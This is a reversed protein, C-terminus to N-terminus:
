FIMHLFNFTYVTSLGLQLARFGQHRRAPGLAVSGGPEGLQEQLRASISTCGGRSLGPVGQVAAKGRPHGLLQTQSLRGPFPAAGQSPGM